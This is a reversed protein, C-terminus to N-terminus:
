VNQVEYWEPKESHNWKVIDKKYKRYYDRYSKVPDGPTKVDDPMALPFETLGNSPINPLNNECWYIVEQTKHVKNYRKTYEHCLARGHVALWKYNNLSERAWKSCPHNKHTLRYHAEGGTMWHASCLLQATELIMKVVHKDCQYWAAKWPNEDLVFINMYRIYNFIGPIFVGLM